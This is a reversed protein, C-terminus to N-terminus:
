WEFRKELDNRGYQLAFEILGCVEGLRTAGDACGQRANSIIADM